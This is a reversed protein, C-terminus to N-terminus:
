TKNLPLLILIKFVNKLNADTFLLHSVLEVKVRQNSPSFATTVNTVLDKLFLQDAWQNLGQSTIAGLRDSM